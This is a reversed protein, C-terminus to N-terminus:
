HKEKALCVKSCMDCYADCSSLALDSDAKTIIYALSNIFDRPCTLGELYDSDAQGIARNMASIVDASDFLPEQCIKAILLWRSRFKTELLLMGIRFNGLKVNPCAALQKFKPSWPFAILFQKTLM